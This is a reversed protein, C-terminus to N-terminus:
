QDASAIGRNRLKRLLESRTERAESELDELGLKEFIVIAHDLVDIAGVSYVVALQDDLKDMEGITDAVQKVDQAIKGVIEDISRM